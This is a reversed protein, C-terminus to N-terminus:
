ESLKKIVSKPLPEKIKNAPVLIICNSIDGGVSILLQSQDAFVMKTMEVGDNDITAKDVVYGNIVGAAAWAAENGMEGIRGEEDALKACNSLILKWFIAEWVQADSGQRKGERELWGPLNTNIQRMREM